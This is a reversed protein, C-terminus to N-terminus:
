EDGMKFIMHVCAFFTIIWLVWSVIPKVTSDMVACLGSSMIPINIPEWYNTGPQEYTYPICAGPEPLTMSDFIGVPSPKEMDIIEEALAQADDALPDLQETFHDSSPPDPMDPGRFFNKMFDILPAFDVGVFDEHEDDFTPDTPDSPDGGDSGTGGGGGPGGGSSGLPPLGGSSSSSGWPPLLPDVGPEAPDDPDDPILSCQEWDHFTCQNLCDLSWEGPGGGECANTPCYISAYEQAQCTEACSTSLGDFEACAQQAEPDNHCAQGTYEVEYEGGGLNTLVEFRCGTGGNDPSICFSRGVDSPTFAGLLPLGEDPTFVGTGGGYGDVSCNNGRDWSCTRVSFSGGTCGANPYGHWVCQVSDQDTTCGQAQICGGGGPTSAPTACAEFSSHPSTCCGTLTWTEAFSIVPATCAGAILLARVLISRM